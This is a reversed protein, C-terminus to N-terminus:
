KRTLKFAVEWLSKQRPLIISCFFHIVAVSFCFVGLRVNMVFKFAGGRKIEKRQVNEEEM